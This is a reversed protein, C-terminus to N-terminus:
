LNINTKKDVKRDKLAEFHKLVLLNVEAGTDLKFDILKSKVQVRNKGYYKTKEQAM